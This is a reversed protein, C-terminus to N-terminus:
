LGTKNPTSVCYVDGDFAELSVEINTLYIKETINKVYSKNLKEDNNNILEYVEIATLIYHNDNEDWLIVKHNKTLKMDIKDSHIHVLDDKYPKSPQQLLNLNLLILEQSPITNLNITYVEEGVAIDEIKM